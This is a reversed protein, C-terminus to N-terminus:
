KFTAQIFLGQKGSIYVSKDDIKQVQMFYESHGNGSDDLAEEWVGTYNTSISSQAVAIYFDNVYEIATYDHDHFNYSSVNWDNSHWNHFYIKGYETVIATKGDAHHVDLPINGIIDWTEMDNTNFDYIQIEGDWFNFNRTLYHLRGNSYNCYDPHIGSHPFHHVITYDASSPLSTVIHNDYWANENSEALIMEGAENKGVFCFDYIPNNGTYDTTLITTWTQGGDYTRYAENNATFAGNNEDFFVISQVDMEYQSVVGNPLPLELWSTGGDATKFIKMNNGSKGIAFCLNKNVVSFEVIDYNTPISCDKKSVALRTEVIGADKKCSSTTLFLIASFTLLFFLSSTRVETRNPTRAVIEQPTKM